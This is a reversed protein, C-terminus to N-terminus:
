SNGGEMSRTVKGAVVISAVAISILPGDQGL